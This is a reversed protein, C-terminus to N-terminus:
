HYTQDPLQSGSDEDALSVTVHSRPSDTAEPYEVRQHHMGALVSLFADSIKSLDELTLTCESLQDDDVVEQITRRIM